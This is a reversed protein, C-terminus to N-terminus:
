DCSVAKRVAVPTHFSRFFSFCGDLFVSSVCSYIYIYIYLDYIYFFIIAKQRALFVTGESCDLMLGVGLPRSVWPDDFLVPM